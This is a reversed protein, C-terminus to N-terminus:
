NLHFDAMDQYGNDTSGFYAWKRGGPTSLSYM